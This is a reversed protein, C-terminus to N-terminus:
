TRGNTAVVHFFTRRTPLGFVCVCLCLDRARIDGSFRYCNDVSVAFMGCLFFVGELFRDSGRFRQSIKKELAAGRQSSVNIVIEIGIGPKGM